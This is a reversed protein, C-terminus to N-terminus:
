KPPKAVPQTELRAASAPAGAPNEEIIQAPALDGEAQKFERKELPRRSRPTDYPNNARRAANLDILTLGYRGSLWKWERKRFKFSLNLDNILTAVDLTPLLEIDSCWPMSRLLVAPVTQNDGIIIVKKVGAIIFQKDTFNALSIYRWDSDSWIHLVPQATKAAGHYAVVAISRLRVMDFALQVIRPRAPVLLLTVERTSTLAKGSVGEVALGIGLAAVLMIRFSNIRM